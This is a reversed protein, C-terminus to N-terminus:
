IYFRHRVYKLEYMTSTSTSLICTHSYTSTHVGRSFSPTIQPFVLVYHLFRIQLELPLRPSPHHPSPPTPPTPFNGLFKRSIEQFDGPLGIILLPVIYQSSTFKFDWLVYAYDVQLSIIRIM